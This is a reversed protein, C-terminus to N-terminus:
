LREIEDKFKFKFKHSLLDKRLFNTLNSITIVFLLIKDM